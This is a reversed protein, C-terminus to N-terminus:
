ARGAKFKLIIGKTRTSSSNSIGAYPGPHLFGFSLYMCLTKYSTYSLRYPTYAALQVVLSDPNSERCPCSSKRKWTVLGTKDLRRDSLYDKEQPLAALAHLM